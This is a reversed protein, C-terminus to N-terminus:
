DSFISIFLISIWASCSVLDKDFIAFRKFLDVLKERNYLDVGIFLGCFILGLTLHWNTSNILMNWCKTSPEQDFKVYKFSVVTALSYISIAAVLWVADLKNVRPGSINGSSSRGITFPMLGFLRSFYYIPQFSDLLDRHKAAIKRSRPFVSSVSTSEIM